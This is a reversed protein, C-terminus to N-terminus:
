KLDRDWRRMRGYAFSVVAAEACAIIAGKKDSRVFRTTGVGAYAFASGVAFRKFNNRERITKRIYEQRGDISYSAWGVVNMMAVGDWLGISKKVAGNEPSSGRLEM